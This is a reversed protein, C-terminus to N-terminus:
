PVGSVAEQCLLHGSSSDPLLVEEQLSLKGEPMAAVM